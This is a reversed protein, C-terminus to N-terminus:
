PLDVVITDTDAFWCVYDSVFSLEAQRTASEPLPSADITVSFPVNVVEGPLVGTESPLYIRGADVLPHSGAAVRIGIRVPGSAASSPRWVASGTNRARLVGELHWGSEAREVSLSEAVLEGRLGHSSRSDRRIEGPKRAFWM